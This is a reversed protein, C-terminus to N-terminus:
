EYYLCVFCPIAARFPHTPVAAAWGTVVPSIKYRKLCLFWCFSDCPSELLSDGTCRPLFPRCNRVCARPPPSQQHVWSCRGRMRAFTSDGGAACDHSCDGLPNTHRSRNTRKNSLTCYVTGKSCELIPGYCVNFANQSATQRVDM